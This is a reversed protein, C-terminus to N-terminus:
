SPPIPVLTINFIIEAPDGTSDGDPKQGDEVLISVNFQNPSTGWQEPPVNIYTTGANVQTYGSTHRPDTTVPVGKIKYEAYANGGQKSGGYLGLAAATSPVYTPAINCYVKANATHAQVGFLMWNSNAEIVTPQPLRTTSYQTQGDVITATQTWGVDKLNGQDVGTKIDQYCNINFANPTNNQIIFVMDNQISGSFVNGMGKVQEILVNVDVTAAVDVAM